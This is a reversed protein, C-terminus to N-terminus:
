YDDVQKMSSVSRIKILRGRIKTNFFLIMNKGSTKHKTYFINIGKYAHKKSSIGLSAIEILGM